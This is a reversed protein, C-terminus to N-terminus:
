RSRRYWWFGAGRGYTFQNGLADPIIPPQGRNDPSEGSKGPDFYKRVTANKVEYYIPHKLQTLNGTRVIHCVTLPKPTVVGSIKAKQKRAVGVHSAQPYGQVLVLIGYKSCEECVPGTESAFIDETAEEGDGKAGKPWEADIQFFIANVSSCYWYWNVYDIWVIVGCRSRVCLSRHFQRHISRASWKKKLRAKERQVRASLNQKCCLNGTAALAGGQM